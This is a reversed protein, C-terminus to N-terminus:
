NHKKGSKRLYFGATLTSFALSLLGFDIGTQPIEKVGGKEIKQTTLASTTIKDSAIELTDLPQSVDQSVIMIDKDESTTKKVQEQEQKKSEKGSPAKTTQKPTPTPTAKAQTKGGILKEKLGLNLRGSLVSVFVVVVVLGLIFSLVKNFNEM